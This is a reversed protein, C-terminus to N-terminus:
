YEIMMSAKASLTRGRYFKNPVVSNTNCPASVTVDVFEGPNLTEINAPSVTVVGGPRVAIDGQVGLRALVDRAATRATASAEAEARTRVQEILHDPLRELAEGGDARLSRVFNSALGMESATESLEQEVRAGVLVQGPAILVPEPALLAAIEAQPQVSGSLARAELPVDELPAPGEVQAQGGRMRELV